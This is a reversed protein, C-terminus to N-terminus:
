GRGYLLKGLSQRPGAQPGASLQQMQGVQNRPAMGPAPARGQGNDVTVMRALAASQEPTFGVGAPKAAEPATVGGERGTPAAMGSPSAVRSADWGQPSYPIPAEQPQNMQLYAPNVDPSIGFMGSYMEPVQAM